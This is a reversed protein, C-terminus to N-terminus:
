QYTDGYKQICEKIVNYADISGAYKGDSCKILAPIIIIDFGNEETKRVNYNSEGTIINAIIVCKAKCLVAKERIKSLQKISDAETAEQWHKFDVYIDTGTVRYDFREFIEPDEIDSLNVEYRTEFIFKGIVEGLAGKYVNQFLMPAMIYKNCKFEPAWGNKIFYEKVGPIGMLTKLRASEESVENPIENTKEFGIQVNNFDREQKYYLKNGVDPLEVYFQSAIFDSDIYNKDCTPHELVLKRLDKWRSIRKEDWDEQLLNMIFKYVRKSTLEGANYYSFTSNDPLKSKKCENLLSEFEPNLLINDAVTEDMVSTIGSDAYIYITKNKMNTRCIRGIAQIITRTALSIVSGTKYLDKTYFRDPSNGTVYCIFAKKILAYAEQGSVEACEQLFEVQYLYKAFDEEELEKGLYVLLNTPKDLYIADFDKQERQPFSNIHVLNAKVEAPIPYQLNQGAGITQYVSIVFIKDGNKLRDSLKDKEIDFDESTLIVISNKNYVGVTTESILRFVEYLKDSSLIRDGKKPHKTLVCLFSKIDDHSLFEKYAKAIRYYRRQNYTSDGREFEYTDQKLTNFVYQCIEEDDFINRWSDKSYEEVTEAGILETRIQVNQYGKTSNKFAEQMREKDELSVKCFAGQMKHKLYRLDYNGIVTDVSATASVGIVKARDCFKLLLKEPTNQFSYMMITSHMDHRAEDEFAYYRFGNEYFSLDYTSGQIQGKNKRNSVLIESTLFDIYRESLSFESLVSRVASEMTFEDEDKKRRELKCQTYNIALINVAVRFYNIFGRLTGLLNHVNATEYKPRDKTFRIENISEADNKEVTVFSKNSDLISHYQHDQFLFNKNMSENEELITRHSLELAYDDHIKKAREKVGDIISQLSQKGYPGKKRQESARILSAPFRKTMLANYINTFLYIYDVKGQLSSNIISKLLTDKTADFEDIFVIAKDMYKSNYFMYSPELPTANRLLFKDMSLFIIQRESIFVGPYLQGVWQWEKETHILQLKEKVNNAKHSLMTSIAKRFAPESKSRLEDMLPGVISKMDSYGQNDRYKKLVKVTDSFKKYEDLKKLENPINREVSDNYGNIIADINSDIFLFKEQFVDLRGDKKFKERLDDKPLNKKQTTVFFIKRDKYRDDMCADYIFNLVSYTKGSGTPSDILLLGNDSSDDECYKKITTYM